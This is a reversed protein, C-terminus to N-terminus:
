VQDDSAILLNRPLEMVREKSNELNFELRRVGRHLCGTTHGDGAVNPRSGNAM